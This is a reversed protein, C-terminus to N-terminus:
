MDNDENTNSEEDSLEKSLKRHFRGSVKFEEELDRLQEDLVRVM